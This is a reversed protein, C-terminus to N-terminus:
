KMEKFLLQRAESIFHLSGTIVLLEDQKRTRVGELIAEKDDAFLKFPKQTLSAFDEINSARSDLITTFFYSDAIEDLQHIMKEYSKDKLATFIVKIKKEPYLLKLSQCLAEIGPLNHAGDLIINEEFHELRGPWFATKLAEKLCATKSNPFLYRMVALALGANYAQFAGCLSTEYEEDQWRFRTYSPHVEITSIEKKVFHMPVENKKAYDEFYPFLEEDVATFCAINKRTIGLKHWAIEELTNGLQAMHDYGINTIVAVDKDIANTADLLGGLGCELILIDIKREEFYLLAM